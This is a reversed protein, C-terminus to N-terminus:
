CGPLTGFAFLAASLDGLGVAGDCDVDGFTGPPVSTSFHFLVTSLDDLNVEGLGDSDDVDPCGCTPNLFSLRVSYKIGVPNAATAPGNDFRTPCLVLNYSEGDELVIQNINHVNCDGVGGDDFRYPYYNFAAYYIEWDIPQDGRCGWSDDPGNQFIFLARQGNARFEYSLTETPGNTLDVPAEFVYWDYDIFWETPPRDSRQSRFTTGCIQIDTVPGLEQLRPPDIESGSPGAGFDPEICGYNNNNGPPVSPTDSPDGNQVFDIPLEPGDSDFVITPHDCTVCDVAPCIVELTYSGATSQDYSGVQIYYTTGISLGELYIYSNFSSDGCNDEACGVEVLNGCAGSYVQMSSDTGISNCTHMQASIHTAVFTFWYTNRGLM